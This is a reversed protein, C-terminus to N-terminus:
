TQSGNTQNIIWPLLWPDRSFRQLIEPSDRSFRQLIKFRHQFMALIMSKTPNNKILNERPNKWPISGSIRFLLQSFRSDLFWWLIRPFSGFIAPSDELITLSDQFNNRFHHFIRFFRWILKFFNGVNKLFRWLIRSFSSFRRFIILFGSLIELIKISDKCFRLFFFFDGFLGSFDLFIRFFGSFDGLFWCFDQFFRLSDWSIKMSDEFFRSANGFLGWFDKLIAWFDGLFWCFDGLFRVSDGLIKWFIEFFGCLIELFYLFIGGWRGSFGWCCGGRCGILPSDVARRWVCVCMWM